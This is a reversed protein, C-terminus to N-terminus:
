EKEKLRNIIGTAADLTVVERIYDSIIPFGMLEAAQDRLKREFSEKDELSSHSIRIETYIRPM